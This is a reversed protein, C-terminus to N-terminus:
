PQCSITFDLNLVISDFIKKFGTTLNTEVVEKITKNHNDKFFLM